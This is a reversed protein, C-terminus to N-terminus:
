RSVICMEASTVVQAHEDTLEDRSSCASAPSHANRRRFRVYSVICSDLLQVIESKYLGRWQVRFMRCFNAVLRQSLVQHRYSCSSRFPNTKRSRNAACITFRLSCHAPAQCHSVPLRLLTRRRCIRMEAEATICAFENERFMLPKTAALALSTFRVAFCLGADLMCTCM